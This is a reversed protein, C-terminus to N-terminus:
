PITLHDLRDQNDKHSHDHQDDYDGHEGEPVQACVVGVREVLDRVLRARGRPGGVLVALWYPSRWPAPGPV